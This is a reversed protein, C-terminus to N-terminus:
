DAAPKDAADLKRFARQLEPLNLLQDIVGEIDVLQYTEQYAQVAMAETLSRVRKDDPRLQQALLLAGNAIVLKGIPSELRRRSFFRDIFGMRDLILKLVTNNAIRGAELVAADGAAKKNRNVLTSIFNTFNSMATEKENNITATSIPTKVIVDDPYTADQSVTGHLKCISEATSADCTLHLVKDQDLYAVLTKHAIDNWEPLDSKRFWGAENGLRDVLTVSTRHDLTKLRYLMFTRLNTARHSTSPGISGTFLIDRSKPAQAKPATAPVGILRIRLRRAPGEDLYHVDVSYVQYEVGRDMRPGITQASDRAVWGMQQSGFMVAVAHEDHPNDKVRKLSLGTADGFVNFCKAWAEYVQPQYNTGTVWVYCAEAKTLAM